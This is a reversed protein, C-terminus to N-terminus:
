GGIGFSPLCPFGVEVDVNLARRIAINAGSAIAHPAHFFQSSVEIFQSLGLLLLAADPEFGMSAPFRKPLDLAQCRFDVWFPLSRESAAM